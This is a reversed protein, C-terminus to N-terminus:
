EEKILISCLQKWQESIDKFRGDTKGNALAYAHGIGVLTLTKDANQWYFRKDKYQSAGAEFFSLPSIRGVEVTETFFRTSPSIMVKQMERVDTMKHSMM